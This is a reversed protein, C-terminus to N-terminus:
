HEYCFKLKIRLSLTPYLFWGISRHFILAGLRFNSSSHQIYGAVCFSLYRCFVSQRGLWYLKLTSTSTLTMCVKKSQAYNYIYLLLYLMSGIFIVNLKTLGFTWDLVSLKHLHLVYLTTFSNVLFFCHLLLFWYEFYWWFCKMVFLIFKLYFNNIFITPIQFIFLPTAYLLLTISALIRVCNCIITFLITNQFFFFSIL